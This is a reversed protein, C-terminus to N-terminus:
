ALSSNRDTRYYKRAEGLASCRLWFEFHEPLETMAGIRNAVNLYIFGWSQMWADTNRREYQGAVRRAARQTEDLVAGLIQECM